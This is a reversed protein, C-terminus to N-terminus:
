PLRAPHPDVGPRGEGPARRPRSRGHAHRPRTPSGSATAADGDVAAGAYMGPEETSTTAKGCRAVNDTPELDPRRTKLVAPAGRSVLQAGGRPTEIRMPAGETLRVTTRHPGIAVDYARSRWHRGRLTVGDHLQPPPMPDLRVGDEGMRM